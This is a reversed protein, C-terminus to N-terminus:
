VDEGEKVPEWLKKNKLLEERKLKSIEDEAQSLTSTSWEDSYYDCWCFLWKVQIKYQQYIKHKVIRYREM